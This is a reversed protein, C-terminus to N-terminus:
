SAMRQSERRLTTFICTDCHTREPGLGGPAQSPYIALDCGCQRCSGVFKSLDQPKGHHLLQHRTGRYHDVATSFDGTWACHQCTM